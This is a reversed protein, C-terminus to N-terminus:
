AVSGTTNIVTAKAFEQVLKLWSVKVEREDKKKSTSSDIICLVKEWSFEM